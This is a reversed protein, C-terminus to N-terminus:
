SARIAAERAAPGVAGQWFEVVVPDVAYVLWGEPAYDPQEQLLTHADVAAEKLRSEGGEEGGEEGMVENQQPSALASIRSAAPRALFDAACEVPSLRSARGRIRVQRGLPPWYFPLAAPGSDRLQRGKASDAKAGFHWGREDVNKLILAHTDPLGHEDVTSVTM